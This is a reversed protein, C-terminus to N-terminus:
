SSWDCMCTQKRHMRIAMPGVQLGKDRLAAALHEAVWEDNGIFDLLLAADKEDLSAALKMVKCGVKNKKPPTLGELM